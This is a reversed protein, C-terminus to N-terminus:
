RMRARQAKFQLYWYKTRPSLFSSPILLWSLEAWLTQVIQWLKQVARSRKILGIFRRLPRWFQRYILAFM